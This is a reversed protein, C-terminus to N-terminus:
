LCGVLIRCVSGISLKLSAACSCICPMTHESNMHLQLVLSLSFGRVLPPRNLTFCTSFDLSAVEFLFAFM